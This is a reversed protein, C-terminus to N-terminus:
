RRGLLRLRVDQEISFPPPAARAREALGAPIRTGRWEAVTALLDAADEFTDTVVLREEHELRFLGLTVAEEFGADVAAITEAWDRLDLEGVTGAAGRVVPSAGVPQTDVLIGGDGLSDHLLRLVHM